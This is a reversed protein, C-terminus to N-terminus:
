EDAFSARQYRPVRRSIVTSSAVASAALARASKLEEISRYEVERVSGGPDSFRVRVEGSAIARDLADIDAQSFAM